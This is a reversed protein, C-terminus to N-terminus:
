FTGAEWRQKAQDLREKSSSVFNWWMFRDGDLAAGGFIAIRSPELARLHLGPATEPLYLDGSALERDAGEAQVRGECVYICIEDAVRPLELRAGAELRWDSFFPQARDEIPSKHAGARGFILRGRAGPAELEPFERAPFHRFSPDCEEDERRLAMWFQLGRLPEPGDLLQESHTIGRGAVMLNVDGPVILQETGLSDRHLVQGSFLYTVTSLGIHPHVPVMAGGELPGMEDLFVFPGVRRRERRPLVRRIGVEGMQQTKAPLIM